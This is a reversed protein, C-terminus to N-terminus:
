TATRGRDHWRDPKRGGHSRDRDRKTGAADRDSRHRHPQRRHRQRVRGFRRGRDRHGYPKGLDPQREDFQGLRRHCSSAAPPMRFRSPAPRDTGIYNGSVTAGGGGVKLIGPRVSGTSSSVKSRSGSPVELGLGSGSTPINAGSVRHDANRRIRAADHRRPDGAPDDGAARDTARDHPRGRGSHQVLHSRRRRRGRELRSHGPSRVPQRQREHKHRAAHARGRTM